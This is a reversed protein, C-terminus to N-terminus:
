SRPRHHEKAKSMTTRQLWSSVNRLAHHLESSTAPPNRYAAVVHPPGSSGEHPRFVISTCMVWRLPTRILDAKADFGAPVPVLSVIPLALSAQELQAPGTLPRRLKHPVSRCVKGDGDSRGHEWSSFVSSEKCVHLLALWPIDEAALRGLPQQVEDMFHQQDLDECTEKLPSGRVQARYMGPTTQFRTAPLSAHCISVTHCTVAPCVSM